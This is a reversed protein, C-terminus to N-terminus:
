ALEDVRLQAFRQLEQRSSLRVAKHNGLHVPEGSGDHVSDVDDVEGLGLAPREDHQVQAHVERGWCAAGHAIVM